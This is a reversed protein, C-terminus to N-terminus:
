KDKVAYILVGFNGGTESRKLRPSYMRSIAGDLFLANRCNLNKSFVMAFDYFSVETNSIVFFVKGKDNIGIGSRIVKNSSGKSFNKNIMGDIVLMPGSQTAFVTGAQYKNYDASKVVMANTKTLLFVGNPQMYFNGDGTKNDIPTIVKGNEVYLGKPSNDTQYMGGNTIFLVEKNPKQLQALLNDIKKLKVSSANNLAMEIKNEPYNLGIVDYLGERNDIKSVVMGGVDNIQAAPKKEKETLIILERIRNNLKNISDKFQKQGLQLEKNKERLQANANKLSNVHKRLSALSDRYEQGGPLTDNSFNDPVFYAYYRSGPKPPGAFSVDMQPLLLILLFIFKIPMKILAQFIKIKYLGRL